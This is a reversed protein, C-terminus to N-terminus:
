AKRLFAIENYIHVEIYNNDRHQMLEEAAAHIQWVAPSGDLTGGYDNRWQVALDEIVYWGGSKVRPWWNKFAAVIDDSTHSGDDIVIDLEPGSYSANTGDTTVVLARSSIDGPNNPDIELGLMSADPHTFWEDWMRMSAGSAVGIEVLVVPEDRLDAFHKEYHPTYGHWVKDTNHKTGIDTLSM